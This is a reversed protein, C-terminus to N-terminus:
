ATSGEPRPQDEALQADHPRWRRWNRDDNRYSLPWVSEAFRDWDMLIEFDRERGVSQGYADHRVLCATLNGPGTTSQIDAIARGGELLKATARQLADAIVPHGAPAALPNNNFYFTRDDVQADVALAAQVDVTDHLAPDYCLPRIKLTAREFLWSVDGLMVDDADIYLGGLRHIYCLRFYDCRMAPHHCREFASVHDPTLEEAIFELATRDDFVRRKIGGARVSDWSSLCAEVDSPIDEPNHWYQVITRPISEDPPMDDRGIPSAGLLDRVYRSRRRDDEWLGDQDGASGSSWSVDFPHPGM